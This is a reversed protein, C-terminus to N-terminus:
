RLTELRTMIAMTDSLLAAMPPSIGNRGFDMNTLLGPQNQSCFPYLNDYLFSLRSSLLDPFFVM